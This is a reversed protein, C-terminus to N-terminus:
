QIAKLINKIQNEFSWSSIINLSSDGMAKLALRSHTLENLKETLDQVNNNNFVRGNDKRILDVACGVMKSALIAKGAAMAENISLGWTEKNSPLCFLDCSQYIAPMICQNQFPMFHIRNTNKFALNKLNAESSGSGVFLLHTDSKDLALFAKLLIEPNKTPMLKGAYLVLIDTESLMLRKRIQQEAKKGFRKNDVAHPMFSLRSEKIGYKLFYSKNNTGAYLANDVHKYIWKLLFYKITSKLCNEKVMITSDGRFIIPVKKSFYRIIKIHSYNAWGYILLHTPKFCKIRKINSRNKIPMPQKTPKNLFEYNYGTYLPIDWHINQQFGRDYIKNGATYFVKLKIKKAMLQHFPTYYQIPHTCIIALRIHKKM